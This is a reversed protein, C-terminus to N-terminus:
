ILLYLNGSGTEPIVDEANQCLRPHSSLDLDGNFDIQSLESFLKSIESIYEVPKKTRLQDDICMYNLSALAVIDKNGEDDPNALREGVKQHLQRFKSFFESLSDASPRNEPLAETMANFIHFLVRHASVIMASRSDSSNTEKLKAIADTRIDEIKLTLRYRSVWAKRAEKKLDLVGRKCTDLM